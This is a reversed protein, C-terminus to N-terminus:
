YTPKQNCKKDRAGPQCAWPQIQPGSFVPGGIPHNRITLRATQGAARATVTNAGLHLGTLVGEVNHDARVAFRGSVDRGNLSVHLGAPRAGVPLVVETFVDGGAVLDARTSITKIALERHQGAARATTGSGSSAQSALPVIGVVLTATLALLLPRGSPPTPM